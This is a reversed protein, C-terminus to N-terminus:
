PFRLKAKLILYLLLLAIGIWLVAASWKYFKPVYKQPPNEVVQVISDRVVVTDQVIRERWRDRYEIRDRYVVRDRYVTDGRQRERTLTSDKVVVLVSDKQQKKEANIKYTNSMANSNTNGMLSMSSCSVLVLCMLM